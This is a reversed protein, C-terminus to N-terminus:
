EPTGGDANHEQMRQKMQARMQQEMEAYKQRQEGTLVANIKKDSDEIISKAKRAKRHRRGSSDALTKLKEQREAIIPTIKTKQDDTLSLQSNLKAVVQEPTPWAGAAPEDAASDSGQFAHAPRSTAAFLAFLCALILIQKQL